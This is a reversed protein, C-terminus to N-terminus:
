AKPRKNILQYDVWNTIERELIDLPIAGNRLVQDHFARIDFQDGLKKQAAKKLEIIKNMGIKYATAQAPMVIYRQIARINEEHTSPTNRDLWDIAQQTSWNKAHLGTDVVLRAARWLEMSLRGFDSYPDTYFGYLKPVYEAYLGWGETYATFGGHKRFQPIETLEKAISIQMHHGPIAEHYALAEQEYKAVAQMDSLNIYYIGPRTGDESPGQYFALGASQERYAEVPKIILNAKPVIGFMQPLKKKINAIIKETDKIYQKRGLDSDPYRFRKASKMFNFFDKLDGKFNVQKLILLMEQHIRQTEDLGIQHVQQPSLNLTTTRRLMYQYYNKGDPLESANGEIPALLSLEQLYQKLKKYAPIVKTATVHSLENLLQTNQKSDLKIKKIKNKFDSTLPNSLIINDIDSIVKPFVFKPAIVGRLKRSELKAILQDLQQDFLSLRALYAKADKLDDIRHMNLMFSILESHRGFMQNVPYSHYLYPARDLHLLAQREFIQYSLKAQYDLAHYNFERLTKLNSRVIALEAENMADSIDNLKDYNRKSGIYTQYEPYRNLDDNFVQEFFHNIKTTELKIQDQNYQSKGSCSVLFIILLLINM